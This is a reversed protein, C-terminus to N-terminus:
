RAETRSQAALFRGLKPIENHLLHLAQVRGDRLALLLLAPHDLREGDVGTAKLRWVALVHAPGAALLHEAPDRDAEGQFPGWTQSYIRAHAISGTSEGTSAVTRLGPPIASSSM